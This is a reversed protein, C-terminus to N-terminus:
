LTRSINGIPLNGALLVWVNTGLRRQL